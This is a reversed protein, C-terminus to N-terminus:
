DKHTYAYKAPIGTAKHIVPQREIGTFLFPITVKTNGHIPQHFERSVREAHVENVFLPLYVRVIVDVCQQILSEGVIIQAYKNDKLAPLLFDIALKRVKAPTDQRSM